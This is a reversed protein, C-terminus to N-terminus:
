PVGRAVAEALRGEAAIEAAAPQIRMRRERYWFWTHLDFLWVAAALQRRTVQGLGSRELLVTAHARAPEFYSLVCAIDLLPDNVVACEWDILRLGHPGSILNSGHLDHHLIAAPREPAGSLLWAAAAREVYEAPPVEGPAPALELRRAYADLAGLLDVRGAQPIAIAHLRRLTDGLTALSDARAFSADTWATGEVFETILWGDGPDAAVIRPALGAAAALGHLVREVSRDSALWADPGPSFRLVFRGSATRVRYTRNVSGGPVRVVEVSPDNAVYGPVHALAEASILEGALPTQIGTAM